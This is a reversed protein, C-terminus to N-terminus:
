YCICLKVGQNMTPWYCIRFLLCHWQYKISGSGKAYYRSTKFGELPVCQTQFTFSELV